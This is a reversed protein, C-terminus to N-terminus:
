GCILVPRNSKQLVPTVASGVNIYWPANRGYAGMLILNSGQETATDLIAEVIDIKSKIIYTAEIGHSELYDRAPRQIKNAPVKEDHTTLVALEIDWQNALYAATYLAEQAGDSGDYALLVRDLQSKVQSVVLIPRPCSRLLTRLGKSLETEAPGCTLCVVTLDTYRARRCIQNIRKGADIALRGSLDLIRCHDNFNSQLEDVWPGQRESQAAVVHLGNLRAGNERRAILAAHDLSSWGSDGGDIAVLINVFLHDKVMASQSKLSEQQTSVEHVPESTPRYGSSRPEIDGAAVDTTIDWGLTKELEARHQTIYLYLDTDTRGSFERLMGRRNIIHLVPKYLTDYWHIVAEAYSIERQKDIGMYYRHVNIHELLAIYQGPVTVTLDANPCIKDLRTQELFEAFEAKIILEDPEVDQTLPVKTQVQTVYAEFHSFGMERAVSVRHNGDKVFYVEGIQYVEIPPVGKQGTMAMKVRAWRKSQIGDRPLFRRNFDRYRGVSGVISDIPIDKLERASVELGKLKHVVDEYSLLDPSKGKLQFVIEQLAARRRARRFDELASFPNDNFEFSM